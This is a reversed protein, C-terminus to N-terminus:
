RKMWFPLSMTPTIATIPRDGWRAIFEKRIDREVERGKRQRPKAPNPGIVNLRIFESSVAKFSNERRRQEALKLEEIHGRPDIGRRDARAM